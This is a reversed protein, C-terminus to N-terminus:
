AKRRRARSRMKSRQGRRITMMLTRMSADTQKLLVTENAGEGSSVFQVGDQSVEISVGEGLTTMDEVTGVFEAAPLTM